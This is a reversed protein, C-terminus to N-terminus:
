LAARAKLGRRRFVKGQNYDTCGCRLRVEAQHCQHRCLHGLSGTNEERPGEVCTGYPAPLDEYTNVTYRVVTNTGAICVPPHCDHPRLLIDVNTSKPVALFANWNINFHSVFRAHLSM